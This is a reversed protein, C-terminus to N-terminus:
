ARCAPEWSAAGQPEPAGTGVGPRAICSGENVGPWWAAGEGLQWSVRSM